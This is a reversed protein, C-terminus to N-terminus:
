HPHSSSGDDMGFVPDFLVYVVTIKENIYKELIIIFLLFLKPIKPALDPIKYFRPISRIALIKSRTM